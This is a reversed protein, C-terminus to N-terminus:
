YGRAEINASKVLVLQEFALKEYMSAQEDYGIQKFLNRVAEFVIAFPYMDAVWSSYGGATVTPNVYVGLLAYQIQSAAKINLVRGAAYAINVRELGYSDLLQGPSLIEFFLGAAAGASDYQRLYSLSRFNPVITVIDLQQIYEASDFQIGTEFLDRFYFDSQHIKLTAARVALQTEAVLDPRNTITYVDDCLEALTAM